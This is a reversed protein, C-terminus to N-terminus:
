ALEVRGTLKLQSDPAIEQPEAERRFLVAGNAGRLWCESGDVVLWSGERMGLVPTENEELYECLRQERTEGQHVSHPDADIYHPNIQFPILNLADLSEPEVIPMDNSTRMTPCAMNTGASSGLYPMGHLVREQIAPILELEYLKKLLRFSNGGGVFVAEAEAIAALPANDTHISHLKYDLAEFRQAALEAYAIHDHLAYPVFLVERVGELRETIATACHELFDTGHTRSSSVLLLRKM